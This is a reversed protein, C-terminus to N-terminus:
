RFRAKEDELLNMLMRVKGCYKHLLKELEACICQLLALRSPLAFTQITLPSLAPTAGCKSRSHEIEEQYDGCVVCVQNRVAEVGRWLTSLNIEFM